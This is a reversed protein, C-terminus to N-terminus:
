FLVPLASNEEVPAEVTICTGVGPSSTIQVSGGIHRARQEMTHLGMTGRNRAEALDFGVGNDCIQLCVQDGELQIEVTVKKARAYRVLNNLAEM